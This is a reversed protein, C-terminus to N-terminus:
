LRSLLKRFLQVLCVIGGWLVFLLYAIGLAAFLLPISGEPLNRYITLLIALGLTLLLLGRITFQRPSPSSKGNSANAPHSTM